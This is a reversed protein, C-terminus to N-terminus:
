HNLRILRAVRWVLHIHTEHKIIKFFAPAFGRIGANKNVALNSSNLTIVLNIQM